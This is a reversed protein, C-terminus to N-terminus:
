KWKKTVRLMKEILAIALILKEHGEESKDCLFDMRAFALLSSLSELSTVLLVHQEKDVQVMKESKKFDDELLSRAIKVREPTAEVGVLVDDIFDFRNRTM